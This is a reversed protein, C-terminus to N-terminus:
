FHSPHFSFSPFNSLSKFYAHCFFVAFAKFDFEQLLIIVCGQEGLGFPSTFFSWNPTILLPLQQQWHPLPVVTCEEPDRFEDVQVKLRNKPAPHYTARTQPPFSKEARIKLWWMISLKQWHSVENEKCFQGKRCVMINTRSFTEGQRDTLWTACTLSLLYAM